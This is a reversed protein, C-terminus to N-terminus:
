ELFNRKIIKLFALGGFIILWILFLNIAAFEKM